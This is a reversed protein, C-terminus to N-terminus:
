VREEETEKKGWRKANMNAALKQYHAKGHKAATKKGGLYGAEVVGVGPKQDLKYAIKYGSTGKGDFECDGYWAMLRNSVASVLRTLTQCFQEEESNEPLMVLQSYDYLTKM